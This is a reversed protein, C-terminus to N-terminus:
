EQKKKKEFKTRNTRREQHCTFEDLRSSKKTAGVADAAKSSSSTLVQQIFSVHTQGLFSASATGKRPLADGEGRREERHGGGDPEWGGPLFVNGM